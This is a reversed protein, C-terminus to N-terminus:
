AAEYLVRQTLFDERKLDDLVFFEQMADIGISHMKDTFDKFQKMNRFLAEAMFDYGNNIRFLSNVNENNKLFREFRQMNESSVKLLMAVRIDYGLSKFNLIITHKKIVDGEFKKLKDHLTSIPVKTFKSMKTLNERSNRRLRCLIMIDKEELKSDNM